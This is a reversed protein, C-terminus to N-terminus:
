GGGSSPLSLTDRGHHYGRGHFAGCRIWGGADMPRIGEEQPLDREAGGTRAGGAPRVEEM